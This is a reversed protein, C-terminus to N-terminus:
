DKHQKHPQTTSLLQQYGGHPNTMCRAVRSVTTVSIRAELAIERQTLGQKLLNAVCWRDILAQKEAPTCLDDLFLKAQEASNLHAITEYFSETYHLLKQEVFSPKHKM